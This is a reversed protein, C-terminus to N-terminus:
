RVTLRIKSQLPFPVQCDLRCTSEAACLLFESPTLYRPFNNEHCSLSFRDFSQADPLFFNIFFWIHFPPWRDSCTCGYTGCTGSARGLSHCTGQFKEGRCHQIYFTIKEWTLSSRGKWNIQLMELISPLPYNLKERDKDKQHMVCVQCFSEGLTCRSPLM